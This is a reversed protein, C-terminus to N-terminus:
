KLQARIKQGAPLCLALTPAEKPLTAGDPFRLHLTMSTPSTELSVLTFQAAAAPGHPTIRPGTLGSGTGSHKGCAVCCIFFVFLFAIQSIRVSRPDFVMLPGISHAKTLLGAIM